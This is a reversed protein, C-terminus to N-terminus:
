TNYIELTNHTKKNYLSFLPKKTHTFLWSKRYLMIESYTGPVSNRAECLFKRGISKEQCQKQNGKGDKLNQQMTWHM